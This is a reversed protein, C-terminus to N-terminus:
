VTVNSKNRCHWVLVILVAIMGGIITGLICILARKPKSKEEAVKASSLTKFVYEESVEALMLNKTQEEVLQYFIAKMDAINTEEIKQNLYEINKIAEEQDQAKIHENISVVLLDVWEKAIEPSYYEVSLHVLSTTTDQHINIRDKLEEYLEWSSPAATEGKAPNFKRVWQKELPDYVNKDYILKNNSRNWGKVGFVEPQISHTNVFRDLFGWTKILEIAILTKDAGTFGGLNIGALSALGGFQGALNSLQSSSSNASPILIATSKYENPINLSILLSSVAFISTIASILIKRKWIIDWLDKLDIEDFADSHRSYIESHLTSLSRLQAKLEKNEKELRTNKDTLKDSM